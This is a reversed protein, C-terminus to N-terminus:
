FMAPAIGATTHPVFIVAAGGSEARVAERVRATVNVLQTRRETQLLLTKM